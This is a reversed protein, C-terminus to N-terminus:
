RGGGFSARVGFGLATSRWAEYTVPAPFDLAVDTHSLAAYIAISDSLRYSAGLAAHWGYGEGAVPQIVGEVARMDLWDVGAGLFWAGREGLGFDRYASLSYGWAEVNDFSVGAAVRSVAAEARWDGTDLGLGARMTVDNKIARGDFRTDLTGGAELSAYVQASAPAAALAFLAAIIARM